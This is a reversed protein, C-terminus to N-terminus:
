RRETGEPCAYLPIVMWEGGQLYPLTMCPACLLGWSETSLVGTFGLRQLCPLGTLVGNFSGSEKTGSPCHGLVLRGAPRGHWGRALLAASILMVADM